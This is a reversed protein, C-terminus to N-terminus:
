RCNWSPFASDAGSNGLCESSSGPAPTDRDYAGRRNYRGRPDVASGYAYYGDGYRAGWGLPAGYYGRYQVDQRLGDNSGLFQPSAPIASATGSMAVIGVLGVTAALMSRHLKMKQGKTRGNEDDIGPRKLRERKQDGLKLRADRARTGTRDVVYACCAVQFTALM